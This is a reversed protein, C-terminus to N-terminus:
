LMKEEIIYAPRGKSEIFIKGLYEGIIGLSLLQVGGLFLIVTILTPYGAVPDGYVLTNLVVYIMFIFAAFSVLLGFLISLKLPAVTFAMIGDVALSILSRYSMHSNGAKRNQTHFEVSAKKFGIWAFMGKTYRETERLRKLENICKRDLLRFDGVNPLIDYRVTKQLFKYFILSFVKRLWSERGRSLRKGYVDQFGDEWKKIMEPIVSPPHQLDADMIIVCDGDANDFGALMASEKGFNRSLEIYGIRVDKKRLEKIINTTNDKSGDDILIVDWDYNHNGNMLNVLAEYLAPLSSEENYCPILLTIKKM